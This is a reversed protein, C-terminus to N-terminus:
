AGAGAPVPPLALAAFAAHRAAAHWALYGDPRILVAAPVGLGLARAVHPAAPGTVAIRRLAAGSGPWDLGPEAPNGIGLLTFHPGRLHEFLRQPEGEEDTWRVDPVRDGTALGAGDIRGGLPGGRYGLSLQREEDGREMAAPREMTSAYLGTTLGLV